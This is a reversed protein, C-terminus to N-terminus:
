SRKVETSLSTVGQDFPCEEAAFLEKDDFGKLACFRSKLMIPIKGIYVNQTNDGDAEDEREWYIERGGETEINAEDVSAAIPRERAVMVKKSMQLYLASSYTLNRNRAEQPLLPATSGDGETIAPTSIAMDGMTIEYRRRLVPNEEGEQMPVSTQDLIIRSNEEIIQRITSSLFEDFSDLQQSVLGKRDFFSSIVTWCDEETISDDYYGDDAELDYGSEHGAM